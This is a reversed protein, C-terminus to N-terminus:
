NECGECVIAKAQIVNEIEKTKKAKTRFYYLTKVGLDHAKVIVKLIDMASIKSVDEEYLSNSIAMDIYQQRAALMRIQDM